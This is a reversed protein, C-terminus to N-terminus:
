LLTTLGLAILISYLTGVLYYEAFEKRDFEKYRVISKGAFVLGVAAMDGRAMLAILMWRELTGIIRGTKLTQTKSSDSAAAPVPWSTATRPLRLLLDAVAMEPLSIDEEKNMLWRIAYNSPTAALLFLLGIHLLGGPEAFPLVAGHLHALKGPLDPSWPVTRSTYILALLFLAHSVLHLARVLYQRRVYLWGSVLSALIETSALGTLLIAILLVQGPALPSLGWLAATHGVLTTLRYVAYIRDAVLSTTEAAAAGQQPQTLRRWAAGEYFAKLGYELLIVFFM